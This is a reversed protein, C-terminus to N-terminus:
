SLKIELLWQKYLYIPALRGFREISGHVCNTDLNSCEVRAGELDRVLQVLWEGNGM